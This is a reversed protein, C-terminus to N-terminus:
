NDKVENLIIKNSQITVPTMDVHMKKFFKDFHTFKQTGMKINFISSICKKLM